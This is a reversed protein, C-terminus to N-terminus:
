RSRRSRSGFPVTLRWLGARLQRSVQPADGFDNFIKATLECPIAGYYFPMSRKKLMDINRYLQKVFDAHDDSTVHIGTFGSALKCRQSPTCILRKM